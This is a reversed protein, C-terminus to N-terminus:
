VLHITPLTQHTYSGAGLATLSLSIVALLDPDDDVVLIRKLPRHPL